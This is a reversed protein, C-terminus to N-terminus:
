NREQVINIKFYVQDNKLYFQGGFAYINKFTLGKQFASKMKESEVMTEIKVPVAVALREGAKLYKSDTFSNFAPVGDVIRFNNSYTIHQAFAAPVRVWAGDQEELQATIDLNKNIFVLKMNAARIIDAADQFTGWDIRLLPASEGVSSGAFDGSSVAESLIQKKNSELPAKVTLPRDPNAVAPEKTPPTQQPPMQPSPQPASSSVPPSTVAPTDMQLPQPNPESVADKKAEQKERRFEVVEVTQLEDSKESLLTQAKPGRLFWAHLAISILLGASFAAKSM